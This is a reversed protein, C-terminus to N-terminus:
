RITEFIPHTNKICQQHYLEQMTKKSSITRANSILHDNSSDLMPTTSLLTLPDKLIPFQSCHPLARNSCHM